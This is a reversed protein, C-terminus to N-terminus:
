FHLSLKLAIFDSITHEDIHIQWTVLFANSEESLKGARAGRHLIQDFVYFITAVFSKKDSIEVTDM